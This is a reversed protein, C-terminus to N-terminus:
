VESLPFEWLTRYEKPLTAEIKRIVDNIRTGLVSFVSSAVDAPDFDRSHRGYDESIRELFEELTARKVYSGQPDWSEYYLGRLMTPLQASLHANQDLTLQDRLAHLTARMAHLAHEPNEEGSLEMYDEIWAGTEAVTKAFLDITLTSM